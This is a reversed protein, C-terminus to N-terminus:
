VRNEATVGAALQVVSGAHVVLCDPPRRQHRQPTSDSLPERRPRQALLTLERTFVRQFNRESM